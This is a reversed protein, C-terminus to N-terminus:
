AMGLATENILPKQFGLSRVDVWLDRPLAFIGVKRHSFDVRALRTLDSGPQGRMDAADSGIILVTYAGNQECVDKGASVATGLQPM